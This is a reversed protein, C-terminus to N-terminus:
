GVVISRLLWSPCAATATNEACFPSGALWGIETPPMTVPSAISLLAIAIVLVPPGPFSPVITSLEHKLLAGVATCAPLVVLSQSRMGEKEMLPLRTNMDVIHEATPCCVVSTKVSCPISRPVVWPWIWDELASSVRITTELRAVFSRRSRRSRVIEPRPSREALASTPRRRWSRPPPPTARHDLRQRTDHRHDRQCLGQFRAARSLCCRLPGERIM